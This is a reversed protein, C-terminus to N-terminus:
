LGVLSITLFYQKSFIMNKKFLLLFSNIDSCRDSLFMDFTQKFSILAENVIEFSAQWYISRLGIEPFFAIM